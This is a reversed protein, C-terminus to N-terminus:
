LHGTSAAIRFHGTVKRFSPRPCHSPALSSPDSSHSSPTSATQVCVAASQPKGTPLQNPIWRGICPVCTEDEVPSSLDRMGAPRSLGPAAVLSALRGDSSHGSEHRSGLGATYFRPLSGPDLNEYLHGHM